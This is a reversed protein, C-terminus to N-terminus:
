SLQRLGLNHRIAENTDENTIESATVTTRSGFSQLALNYLLTLDTM